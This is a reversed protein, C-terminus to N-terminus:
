EVHMAADEHMEIHPAINDMLKFPESEGVVAISTNDVTLIENEGLTHHLAKVAHRILEGISAGAFEDVHNELYTRASQSRNGVAAAYVEIVEANPSAQVLHPKDSCGAIILGAGYPRSGYRQTSPQLKMALKQSLVKIPCSSQYSWEHSACQQQLFRALVRGDSELGAIAVGVHGDLKFIKEQPVSMENPTKKLAAIVAHTKSKIGVVANGHNVAEMAYEVQYIRGEQSWISVSSDYKTSMENPTKKVAAIVAHTKSKIGVVANGHNVAEMAYEV